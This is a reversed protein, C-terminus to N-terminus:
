VSRSIEKICPAWESAISPLRDEARDKTYFLFWRESGAPERQITDFLLALRAAASTRRPTGAIRYADPNYRVILTKCATGLAISALIDLDRRCDCHYGRHEDEDVELLVYGWPRPIAFDVYACTQGGGCAAIPIRLQYEFPVGADTLARHVYLERRKTLARPDDSHFRAMHTRLSEASSFRRGDCARCVYNLCDACQYKARGHACTLVSSCGHVVARHRYLHCVRGFLKGCSCRHNRERLHVTAYHRRLNGASSFSAGCFCEM